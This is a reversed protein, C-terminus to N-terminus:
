TVIVSIDFFARPEAYKLFNDKIGEKSAYLHAELYSSKGVWGRSGSSAKSGALYVTSPSVM